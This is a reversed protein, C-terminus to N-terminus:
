VATLTTDLLLHRNTSGPGEVCLSTPFSSPGLHGLNVDRQWGKVRLAVATQLQWLIEKNPITRCELQSPPSTHNTSFLTM